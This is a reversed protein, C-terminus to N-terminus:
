ERIGGTFQDVTIGFRNAVFQFGSDNPHICDFMLDSRSVPPGGLTGRLDIYHLEPIESDMRALFENHRNVINRILEAAESASAGETLASLVCSSELNPNPYDYGHIFFTLPAGGYKQQKYFNAEQVLRKLRYEMSAQRSLLVTELGNKQYEGISGLMDNGGLSIFMYSLEPGANDIVQLFGRKNEIEQRLTHGAVVSATIRFGDLRLWDLMDRQIQLGFAFDTWSDGIMGFRSPSPCTTVLECQLNALLEEEPSSSRDCYPMVCAAIILPLLLRGGLIRQIIEQM